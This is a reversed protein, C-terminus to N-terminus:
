VTGEASAEAEQPVNDVAPQTSATAPEKTFDLQEAYGSYINIILDKPM